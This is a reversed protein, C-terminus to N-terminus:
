GRVAHIVPKQVMMIEDYIARVKFPGFGEGPTKM